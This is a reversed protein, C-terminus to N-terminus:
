LNWQACFRYLMMTVVVSDMIPPHMVTGTGASRFFHLEGYVDGIQYRTPRTPRFLAIVAGTADHLQFVIDDMLQCHLIDMNQANPRWRYQAGDPGTFFRMGNVTPDPIVLDAMPQTNKGMIVRGLGGNSSWELKAVRDEKNPRIMRWLTTVSQGSASVTTQFRYMVGWSNFLCSERPDQSTWSLVDNSATTM